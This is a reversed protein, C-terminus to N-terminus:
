PVWSGSWEGTICSRVVMFIRSPVAPNDRRWQALSKTYEYARIAQPMQKGRSISREFEVENM